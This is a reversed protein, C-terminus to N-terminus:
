ERALSVGKGTAGRELLRSKCGIWTLAPHYPRFDFLVYWRSTFARCLLHWTIYGTASKMSLLFSRHRQQVVVHVLQRPIRQPHRPQLLFKPNAGHKLEPVNRRAKVLSDLPLDGPNAMQM